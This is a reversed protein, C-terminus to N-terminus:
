SREIGLVWRRYPIVLLSGLVGGLCDALFDGLEVFRGPTQSQHVEDLAGYVCVILISIAIFKRFETWSVHYRHTATLARAM